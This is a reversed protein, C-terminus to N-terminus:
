LPFRRQPHWATVDYSYNAQLQLTDAATALFIEHGLVGLLTPWIAFSTVVVFQSWQALTELQYFNGPLLLSHLNQHSFSILLFFSFCFFLFFFFSFASVVVILIHSSFLTAIFVASFTVSQFWCIYVRAVQGLVSIVDSTHAILCM